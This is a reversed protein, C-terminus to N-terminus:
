PRATKQTAHVRDGPWALLQEIHKGLALELFNKASQFDPAHVALGLSEIDANWGEDGLWFKCEINICPAVSVEVYLRALSQKQLQEGRSKNKV